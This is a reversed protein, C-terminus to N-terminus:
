PDKFSKSILSWHGWPLSTFLHKGNGTGVRYGKRRLEMGGVMHSCWVFTKVYRRCLSLANCRGMEMEMVLELELELSWVRLALHYRNKFVSLQKKYSNKFSYLLSYIKIFLAAHLEEHLSNYLVHKKCLSLTELKWSSYFFFSTFYYM